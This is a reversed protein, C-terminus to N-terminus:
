LLNALLFEGRLSFLVIEFLILGRPVLALLNFVNPFIESSLLGTQHKTFKLHSTDLRSVDYTSSGEPPEQNLSVQFNYVYFVYKGIHGM